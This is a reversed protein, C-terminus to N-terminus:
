SGKPPWLQGLFELARDAEGRPVLVRYDSATRTVINFAEEGVASFGADRLAAVTLPGGAIPLRTIELLEAPDGPDGRSLWAFFKARLSM